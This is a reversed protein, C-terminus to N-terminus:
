GVLDALAAGSLESKPIFGRAPSTALRRRYASSDRTSILVTAAGLGADTWAALWRSATASGPAPRRAARGGPAPAAGVGRGVGRGDAEGVVEFGAAGLLRRALLRFGAHDDVILVTECAPAMTESTRRRSMLALVSATAVRRRILRAGDGIRSRRRASM